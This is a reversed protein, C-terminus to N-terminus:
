WKGLVEGLWDRLSEVTEQWEGPYENAPPGDTLNALENYVSGIVTDLLYEADHGQEENLLKTKEEKIIRRLQRKTIKM